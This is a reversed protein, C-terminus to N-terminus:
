ADKAIRRTDAALKAKDAREAAKAAREEENECVKRCWSKHWGIMRKTHQEIIKQRGFLTRIGEGM